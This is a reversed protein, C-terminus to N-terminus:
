AGTQAHRRRGVRREAMSALIAGLRVGAHPKISRSAIGSVLSMITATAATTSIGPVHLLRIANMQLAMAVAILGILVYTASGAVYISTRTMWCAAFSAQVVLSLVLALSSRRPWAETINSDDVESGSFSRLIPM